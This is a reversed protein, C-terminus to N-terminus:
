LRTTDNSTFASSTSSTSSGSAYKSKMSQFQQMLKQRSDKNRLLYAAGAGVATWLAKRM